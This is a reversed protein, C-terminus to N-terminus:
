GDDAADSTYLLCDKYVPMARLEALIGLGSIGRGLNIDLLILDYNKASIMKLADEGNTASDLFAYNKLFINILTLTPKDDDVLLINHKKVPFSVVETESKKPIISFDPINENKGPERLPFQVSFTSGAGPKSEVSIKGGMKEVFRKTVTLGLGSGEFSRSLGESVQRFEDFIIKQDEPTIGIGTDTILITVYKINHEEEKLVRVIVSGSHTYKLGNNILNNIITVLMRRDAKLILPFEPIFVKLRLGKKQAMPKLYSAAENIAERVDFFEYNTVVRDSEIRSLDLILNLTESLRQGALFITRLLDNQDPDKVQEILMEAFGIIGILPTRLEHSMNSLFNSKLRSMEEAKFKADVLEINARERAIAGGINAAAAKLLSEESPSYVTYSTCNDFGIFGWFEKEIKIPVVLIAKIQQLELLKREKNPLDSVLGNIVGNEQLVYNWREFDNEYPLNQLQPNHIQKSINGKTYEFTQNMVIKGTVPHVSNEFIYVRDAETFDGLIQLVITIAVRLDKELLLTQTLSALGSLWNKHNIVKKEQMIEETIDQIIDFSFSSTATKEIITSSKIRIWIKEGNKRKIIKIISGSNGPILANSLLNAKEETTVPLCFDSIRKGIFEEKTYGFLNTMRSNIDIIVGDLNKVAIGYDSVDFIAKFKSKSENLDVRVKSIQSNDSFVFLLKESENILIKRLFLGCNLISGNRHKGSVNTKKEDTESLGKIEDTILAFESKDEFLLGISKGTLKSSDYGFITKVSSNCLEIKKTKSNVLVVADNLSSLITELLKKTEESEEKEKFQKTTDKGIAWSSYNKLKILGSISMWSVSKKQGSKSVIDWNFGTYIGQYEKWKMRLHNLYEDDPYLLKHVGPKDIIESELYGTVKECEKNWVKFLGSSDVATFLLPLSCLFDILNENQNAFAFGPEIENLRNFFIHYFLGNIRIIILNFDQLTDKVKITLTIFGPEKEKLSKLTKLYSKPNEIRSSILAGNAIQLSEIHQPKTVKVVMSTSETIIVPTDFGEIKSDIEEFFM